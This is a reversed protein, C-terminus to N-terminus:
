KIQLQKTELREDNAIKRYYPVPFVHNLKSKESVKTFILEAGYYDTRNEYVALIDVVINDMMELSAELLCWWPVSGVSLDLKRLALYICSVAIIQGPYFLCLSTRYSDNLYGWSMQAIKELQPHKSFM